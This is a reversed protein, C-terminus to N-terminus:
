PLRGKWPRRVSIYEVIRPGEKGSHRAVVCGGFMKSLYSAGKEGGDFDMGGSSGCMHAKEIEASGRLKMM